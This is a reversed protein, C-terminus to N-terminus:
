MILLFNARVRFYRFWRGQDYEEYFSGEDSDDCEVELDYVKGEIARIWKEVFDSDEKHSQWIWQKDKMELSRIEKSEEPLSNEDNDYGPYYSKWVRPGKATTLVTRYGNERFLNQYRGLKQFDACNIMAVNGPNHLIPKLEEIYAKVEQRDMIDRRLDNARLTLQQCWDTITEISTDEKIVLPDIKLDKLTIIPSQIRAGVDKSCQIFKDPRGLNWVKFHQM